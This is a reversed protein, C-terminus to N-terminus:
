HHYRYVDARHDVALITVTRSAQDIEYIVRYDGRRASWRGEFPASLEAGVRRPNLALDAEAFMLVSDIVSTPLKGSAFDRLVPKAIQVKYPEPSSSMIM